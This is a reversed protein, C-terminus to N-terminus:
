GLARGQFSGRVRRPMFRGSEIETWAALGERDGEISFHPSDPGVLNEALHQQTPVVDGEELGQRGGHARGDGLPPEVGETAIEM